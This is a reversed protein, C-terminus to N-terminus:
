VLYRGHAAFMVYGDGGRKAVNGVSCGALCNHRLQQSQEFPVIRAEVAIAEHLRTVAFLQAGANKSFETM